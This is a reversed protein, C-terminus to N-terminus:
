FLRYQKVTIPDLQKSLKGLEYMLLDHAERNRLDSDVVCDIAGYETVRLREMRKLFLRKITEFM